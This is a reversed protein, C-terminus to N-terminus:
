KTEYKKQEFWDITLDGMVNLDTTQRPQGYRYSMFLKIAALDGQEVLQNLMNLAIQDYPKLKEILELEESKPKRGAGPRAGGRNGNGNHEESM